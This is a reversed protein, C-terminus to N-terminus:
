RQWLLNPQRQPQQMQPKRLKSGQQLRVSSSLPADAPPVCAQLSSGRASVAYPEPFRRLCQTDDPRHFRNARGCSDSILEVCKDIRQFTLKRCDTRQSHRKFASLALLKSCRRRNCAEHRLLRSTYRPRVACVHEVCDPIALNPLTPGVIAPSGDTLKKCERRLSLCYHVRYTASCRGVELTSIDPMFFSIAGLRESMGSTTLPSTAIPSYNPTM